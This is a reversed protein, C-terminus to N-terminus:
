QCLGVALCVCEGYANYVTVQKPVNRYILEVLETPMAEGSFIASRLSTCKSIAPCKYYELGLAPV